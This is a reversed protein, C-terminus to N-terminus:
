CAESNIHTGHPAGSAGLSVWILREKQKSLREKQACAFLAEGALLLMDYVWAIM